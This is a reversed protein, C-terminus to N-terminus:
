KIYQIIGFLIFLFGEIAIGIAIGKIVSIQGCLSSINVKCDNIGSQIHPLENTAIKEVVKSVDKLESEVIDLREDTNM